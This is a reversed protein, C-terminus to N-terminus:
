IGQLSQAQKIVCKPTFGAKTLAYQCIAPTQSILAGDLRVIPYAFTPYGTKIDAGLYKESEEKSADTYKVGAIELSLRVPTGRAGFGQHYYVANAEQQKAEAM